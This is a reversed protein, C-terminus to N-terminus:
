FRIAFRVSEYTDLKTSFAGNEIGEGDAEVDITLVEALIVRTISCVNLDRRTGM